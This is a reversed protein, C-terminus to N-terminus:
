CGPAPSIWAFAPKLAVKAGAVTILWFSPAGSEYLEFIIEDDILQNDGSGPLTLKLTWSEGKFVDDFTQPLEFDTFPSDVLEYTVTPNEGQIAGMAGIVGAATVPLTVSSEGKKLAQILARYAPIPTIVGPAMAFEGSVSEDNVDAIVVAVGAGANSERHYHVSVSSELPPLSANSSTITLDSSIMGLSGEMNESATDSGEVRVNVDPATILFNSSSTLVWNICDTLMNIDSTGEVVAGDAAGTAVVAEYNVGFGDNEGAIASGALLGIAAATSVLHRKLKTM